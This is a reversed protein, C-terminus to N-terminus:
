INTPNNYVSFSGLDYKDTILNMLHLMMVEHYGTDTESYVTWDTDTCTMPGTDSLRTVLCYFLM